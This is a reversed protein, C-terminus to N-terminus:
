KGNAPPQDSKIGFGFVSGDRAVARIFCYEGEDLGRQPTVKFVHPAVKETNFEYSLKAGAGTKVGGIIGADEFGLQREGRSKDVEMQALVFGDPGAGMSTTAGSQTDEYYFYFVPHQETIQLRTHASNLVIKSRALRGGGGLFTYGHKTKRYTISGLRTMTRQGGAEHFYYIGSAHPANPNNPDILAASEQENAPKTAGPEAAVTFSGAAHCLAM